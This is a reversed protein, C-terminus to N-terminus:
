LQIESRLIKLAEYTTNYITKVAQGTKEAIAEYSLGEFYKLFLYEKQRPSLKSLARHLKEKHEEGQQIEVLIQEYSREQQEPQTWQDLKDLNKAKQRLETKLKNLYVTTIYAHVNSVESLTNSNQWFKFFVENATDKAMEPDNCYYIGQRVLYFYYRRFLEAIAQRDGSRTAAWLENDTLKEPM